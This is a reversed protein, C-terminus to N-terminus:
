RRFERRVYWAEAALLLLAIALAASLIPNDILMTLVNM